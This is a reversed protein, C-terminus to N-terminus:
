GIWEEVEPMWGALLQLAELVDEHAGSGFTFYGVTGESKMPALAARAAAIQVDSPAGDMVHAAIFVWRVPGASGDAVPM